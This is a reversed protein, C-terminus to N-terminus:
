IRSRNDTIFESIDRAVEEPNTIQLRHSADKIVISKTQPLWYIIKEEREKSRQGETKTGRIQLVSIDPADPFEGPRSASDGPSGTINEGPM